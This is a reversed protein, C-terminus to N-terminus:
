LLFTQWHHNAPDTFVPLLVHNLDCWHCTLAQARPHVGACCLHNYQITSTTEWLAMDPVRVEDHYSSALEFSFLAVISNSCDTLFFPFCPLTAASM